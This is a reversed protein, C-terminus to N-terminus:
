MCVGLNEHIGRQRNRLRRLCYRVAAGRSPPPPLTANSRTSALLLRPRRAPCDLTQARSLINLRPATSLVRILFFFLRLYVLVCVFGM